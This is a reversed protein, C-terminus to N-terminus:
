VDAEHRAIIVGLTFLADLPAIVRGASTGAAFSRRMRYSWRDALDLRKCRLMVGSLVGCVISTLGHFRYVQQITFGRATLLRATRMWGLPTGAPVATKQRRETLRAALLGAAMACLTGGPKLAASIRAIGSEADEISPELWIACDYIGNPELQRGREGLRSLMERAHAPASALVGVAGGAWHARMACVDYVYQFDPNPYRHPHPVADPHAFESM